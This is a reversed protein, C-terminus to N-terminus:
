AARVNDPRQRRAQPEHHMRAALLELLSLDGASVVYAADAVGVSSIGEEIAQQLVLAMQAATISRLLNGPACLLHRRVDVHGAPEYYAPRIELGDIRIKAQRKTTEVYPQRVTLGTGRVIWEVPEGGETIPKAWARIDDALCTHTGLLDKMAESASVAIVRCVTALSPRCQTTVSGSFVREVRSWSGAKRLHAKLSAVGDAAARATLTDVLQSALWISAIRDGQMSRVELERQLRERDQSKRASGVERGVRSLHVCARTATLHVSHLGSSLLLDIGAHDGAASVSSALARTVAFPKQGSLTKTVAIDVLARLGPRPPTGLWRRAMENGAEATAALREHIAERLDHIAPQLCKKGMRFATSDIASDPLPSAERHRLHIPLHSQFAPGLGSAIYRTWELCFALFQWHWSASKWWEDAAPNRASRKIRDNHTMAWRIPDEAPHGFGGVFMRLGHAALHKAGLVGLPTGEAFRLLARELDAGQPSFGKPGITVEGRFDARARFRFTQGRLLDATKVAESSSSQDDDHAARLLADAVSWVTSETLAVAAVYPRPIDDSSTHAMSSPRGAGEIVIDPHILFTRSNPDAALADVWSQDAEVHYRDRKTTRGHRTRYQSELALSLARRGHPAHVGRVAAVLLSWGLTARQSITLDKTLDPAQATLGRLIEDVVQSGPTRVRALPLVRSLVLQALREAGVQRAYQVFLPPRGGRGTRSVHGELDHALSWIAQRLLGTGEVHRDGPQLTRSM